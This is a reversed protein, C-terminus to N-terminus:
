FHGSLGIMGDVREDTKSVRAFGEVEGAQATIEGAVTGTTPAYFLRAAGYGSAGRVTVGARVSRLGSPDFAGGSDLSLAPTLALSGAITADAFAGDKGLHVTGALTRLGASLRADKIGGRDGAVSGSVFVGDGRYGARVEYKTQGETEGQANKSSVIAGDSFFRGSTLRYAGIVGNADYRVGTDFRTEGSSASLTLTAREVGAGNVTARADGRLSTDGITGRADFGITAAGNKFGAGYRGGVSVGANRNGLRITNPVGLEDLVVSGRRYSLAAAGALVAAGKWDKGLFLDRIADGGIKQTLAPLMAAVAQAGGDGAGNGPGLARMQDVFRRYPTLAQPDRKGQEVDRLYGDYDQLIMAQQEVGYEGFSAHDQLTYRYPRDRDGTQVISVIQQMLSQLAYQSGVHQYQWVHTLEHILVTNQWELMGADDPETTGPKFTFRTTSPDVHVLNGLVLAEAGSTLAGRTFRFRVADYDIGGGFVRRAYDREARTMGRERVTDSRAAVANFDLDYYNGLSALTGVGLQDVVFGLERTSILRSFTAELADKDLTARLLRVAERSLLKKDGGTAIARCIGAITAAREDPAMSAARADDIARAEALSLAPGPPLPSGALPDALVDRSFSLQLANTQAALFDAQSLTGPAPTGMWTDAFPSAGFPSAIPNLGDVM